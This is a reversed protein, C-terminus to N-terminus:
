SLRGNQLAVEGANPLLTPIIDDGDDDYDDDEVPELPRKRRGPAEEEM